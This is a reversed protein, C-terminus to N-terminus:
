LGLYLRSVQKNNEAISLQLALLMSDAGCVTTRESTCLTHWNRRFEKIMDLISKQNLEAM